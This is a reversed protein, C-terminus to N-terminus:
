RLTLSYAVIFGGFMDYSYRFGLSRYLSIVSDNGSFVFVYVTHLGDVVAFWLMPSACLMNAIRRGRYGPLVYLNNLCGIKKPM